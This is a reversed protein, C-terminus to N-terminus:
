VCLSNDQLNSLLEAAAVHCPELSICAKLHGISEGILKDQFAIRGLHFHCGAHLHPVSPDVLIETFVAFARKVEGALEELSALNYRDVPEVFSVEPIESILNKAVGSLVKKEIIRQHIAMYFVTRRTEWDIFNSASLIFVLDASELVRDSFAKILVFRRMELNLFNNKTLISTLDTSKLLGADLTYDLVRRRLVEQIEDDVIFSYLSDCAMSRLEPEFTPAQELRSALKSCFDNNAYGESKGLEGFSLLNESWEGVDHPPTLNLHTLLSSITQTVESRGCARYIDEYAVAFTVAGTLRLRWWTRMLAEVTWQQHNSLWDISNKKSFLSQSAIECGETIGQRKAGTLQVFLDMDPGWRGSNMAHYLSLLRELANRRYLVLHKYGSNRSADILAETVEWPVNEVCHKILVGRSCIKRVDAALVISDREKLWHRTVYGFARDELFPEHDTKTFSSLNM